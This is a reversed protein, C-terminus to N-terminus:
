QGSGEGASVANEVELTFRTGKGPESECTVTGGLTERAESAVIYLGLGTGGGTRNTTFFADFARDKTAQDMGKGDDIVRLVLTSGRTEARVTVNGQADSPFAHVLANDILNSVIQSYAGPVGKVTLGEPCEILVRHPSKRIIPTLSKVIEALHDKLPFSEVELNSRDVSVHKFSRVLEAAKGLNLTAIGLGEEEAALHAELESRKITGSDLSKKVLAAEGRLFSVATVAVGLSSNVDHILSAVHRLPISEREVEIVQKRAAELDRARARCASRERLLFFAFLAAICVLMFTEMICLPSALGSLANM